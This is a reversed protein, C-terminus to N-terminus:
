SFFNEQNWPVLYQVKITKLGLNSEILLQLSSSDEIAKILSDDGSFFQVISTGTKGKITVPFQTTKIPESFDEGVKNMMIFHSFDSEPEFKNKLNSLEIHSIIVTNTSKNVLQTRLLLGKHGDVYNVTKREVIRADMSFRSKRFNIISRTIEASVAIGSFILSIISIILTIKM